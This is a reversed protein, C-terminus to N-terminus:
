LTILFCRSYIKEDAKLKSENIKTEIGM